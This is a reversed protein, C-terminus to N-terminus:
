ATRSDSGFFREKQKDVRSPKVVTVRSRSSPTLGFEILMKTAQQQAKNAIQLYPSVIPFGNHSTSKVVMGFELLKKEAAKWRAFTQCYLCFADLDAETLLGLRQLMPAKDAWELRADEQLWDPPTLDVPAEPEPEHENLPRRGPNGRLVKMVTPVPKRGRVALRTSRVVPLGACELAV